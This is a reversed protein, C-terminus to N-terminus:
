PQILNATNTGSFYLLQVNFMEEVINDQGDIKIISLIYKDDLLIM